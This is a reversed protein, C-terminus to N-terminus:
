KYLSKITGWRTKEVPVVIDHSFATFCEKGDHRGDYNDDAFAWLHMGYCGSWSVELVMVDSYNNGDPTPTSVELDGASYMFSEVLEGEVWIEPECGYPEVQDFIVLINYYTVPTESFGDVYLNFEREPFFYGDKGCTSPEFGVLGPAQYISLDVTDNNRDILVEGGRDYGANYLYHGPAVTYYEAVDYHYICTADPYVVLCPDPNAYLTSFGFFLVAFSFVSFLLIRKGFM